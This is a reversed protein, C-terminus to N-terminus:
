NIRDIGQDGALRLRRLAQPTNPMRRLAMPSFAVGYTANQHHFLSKM